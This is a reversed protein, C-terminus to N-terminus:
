CRRRPGCSFSARRSTTASTTSVLAHHPWRHDLEHGPVPQGDPQRFDGTISSASTDVTTVTPAMAESVELVYQSDASGVPSNTGDLLNVAPTVGIYYTGDRPIYIQRAAGATLGLTSMRMYNGQDDVVTFGLATGGVPQVSVQFLQGATATFEYVDVDQDLSGDGDLDFPEDIVGSAVISGMGQAPITLATATGGAVFPDDNNAARDAAEDSVVTASALLEETPSLCVGGVVMEGPQCTPDALCLGTDPSFM